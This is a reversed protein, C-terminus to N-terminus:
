RGESCCSLVECKGCGEGERPCPNMMGAHCLVFDYKVPDLPELRRLSETIELAMKWDPTARRTLGLKKGLRIVHTDLPIVLKAPSVSTWIGLDPIERRVMWRLFLNLRKCGSGTEPDSLYAKLGSRPPLSSVIPQTELRIIRSVFRSLAPGIDPDDEHYGELFFHEVSGHLELIQKIWFLLVAVDDGDFFRYVFGRFHKKLRDPGSEMLFRLPSSDMVDLLIRVSKRVLDVRGITFCAAVFAAIERDRPDTYRVVFELPDSRLDDIHFKRLLINLTRHVSIRGTGSVMHRQFDTGGPRM